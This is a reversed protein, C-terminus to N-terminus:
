RKNTGKREQECFLRFRVRQYLETSTLEKFEEYSYINSKASNCVACCPVVNGVEYGKKCDKRDLGSSTEPLTFPCYHCQNNKILEIFEEKNLSWKQGKREARNKSVNFRTNPKRSALKYYGQDRRTKNYHKQCYGNSHVKETCNEILCQKIREPPKWDVDGKKLRLYHTICYTLAYHLKNCGPYSCHKKM